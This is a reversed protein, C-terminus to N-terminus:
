YDELNDPETYRENLSIHKKDEYDKLTKAIRPLLYDRIVDKLENPAPQKTDAHNDTLTTLADLASKLSDYAHKLQQYQEATDITYEDDFNRSINAFLNSNDKILLKLATNFFDTQSSFQGRSVKQMIKMKDVPTIRTQLVETKTINNNSKPM